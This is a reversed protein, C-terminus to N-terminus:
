MLGLPQMLGLVCPQKKLTVLARKINDSAPHEGPNPAHILLPFVCLCLLVVVGTKM